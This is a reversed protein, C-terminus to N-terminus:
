LYKITSLRHDDGNMQVVTGNEMLRSFAPVGVYKTLDSTNMTTITSLHSVNRADLIDFFTKTKFNDEYDANRPIHVKDIDDIVLLTARKAEDIINSYDKKEGIAKQIANFLGQARMFRVRAFRRVLVNCVASSLHTKGTGSTGFLIFNQHNAPFKGLIDESMAFEYLADYARPFKNRDFGEFSRSRLNDLDEGLWSFCRQAEAARAVRRREEKERRQKEEEEQRTAAQQCACKAPVYGTRLGLTAYETPKVPGCVGCIWTAEAETEKGKMVEFLIRPPILVKKFNPRELDGM